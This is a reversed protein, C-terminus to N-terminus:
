REEKRDNQLITFLNKLDEDKDCTKKFKRFEKKMRDFTQDAFKETFGANYLTGIFNVTLFSLIQSYAINKEELFKLMLKFFEINWEDCNDKEKAM